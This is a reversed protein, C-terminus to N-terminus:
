EGTERNYKFINIKSKRYLVEFLFRLDYYNYIKTKVEIINIASILGINDIERNDYKYIDETLFESM